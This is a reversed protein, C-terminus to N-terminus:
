KAPQWARWSDWRYGTFSLRCEFSANFQGFQQKKGFVHAKIALNRANGAVMWNESKAVVNRYGNSHVTVTRIV